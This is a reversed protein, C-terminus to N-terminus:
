HLDGKGTVVNRNESLLRNLLGALRVGAQSLRLAIIERGREIYKKSLWNDLSQDKRYAYKLAFRRSENAWETEKSANWKAYESATIRLSLDRSYQLLSKGALHILKGDWLYHLNTRRGKFEVRIRNGGRNSANGLHLPQHVDGVFHVLYMLAEKRKKVPLEEDSLARSFDGIKEVVCDGDPCDRNKKYTWESEKINCYHWPRESRKKRVTDAWNAVHSLKKINFNKRIKTKVEPLLYTEAIEAVIRHGKAGWARAEDVSFVALNLLFVSIWLTRSIANDAFRRVTLIFSLDAKCNKMVNRLVACNQTTMVRSEMEKPAQQTSLVRQSRLPLVACRMELRHARDIQLNLPM